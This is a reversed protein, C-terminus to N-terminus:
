CLYCFLTYKLCPLLVSNLHSHGLELQTVSELDSTRGLGTGASRDWAARSPYLPLLPWRGVGGVRRGGVGGGVARRVGVRRVELLPVQLGKEGGQM